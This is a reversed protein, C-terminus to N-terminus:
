LSKDIFESSADGFSSVNGKIDNEAVISEIIQYFYTWFGGFFGHSFDLADTRCFSGCEERVEEIEKFVEGFFLERYPCVPM